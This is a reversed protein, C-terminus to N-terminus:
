SKQRSEEIRKEFESVPIPKSFYYGQFLNCGMEALAKFQWEEEVGEVLPVIDLDKAM